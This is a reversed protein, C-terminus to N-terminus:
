PVIMSIIITNSAVNKKSVDSGEVLSCPKMAWFAVINIKMIKLDEFRISWYYLVKGWQLWGL